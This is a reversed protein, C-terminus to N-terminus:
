HETRDIIEVEDWLPQHNGKEKSIHDAMGSKEIEGRVESTRTAKIKTSEIFSTNRLETYTGSSSLCRFFAPPCIPQFMTSIVFFIFVITRFVKFIFIM